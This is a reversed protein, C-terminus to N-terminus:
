SRPGRRGSQQPARRDGGRQQQQQQRQQQQQQPKQRQQGQRQRNGEETRAPRGGQRQAQQPRGTPKQAAGRQAAGKTQGAANRGGKQQTRAGSAVKLNKTKKARPKKGTKIRVIGKAIALHNIAHDSEGQCRLYGAICLTTTTGDIVGNPDVNAIAIQVASHDFSTILSNTAHCKRPIYLDVNVGEENYTGITAM